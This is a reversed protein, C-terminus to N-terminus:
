PGEIHRDLFIVDFNFIITAIKPPAWLPVVKVARAGKPSQDIEYEVSRDREVTKYRPSDFACGRAQTFKGPQTENQKDSEDWRLMSPSVTM